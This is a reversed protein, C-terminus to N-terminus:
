HSTEDPMMDMIKAMQLGVWKRTNVGTQELMPVTAQMLAVMVAEEASDAEVPIEIGVKYPEEEGGSVEVAVRAIRIM